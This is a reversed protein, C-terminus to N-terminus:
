VEKGALHQSLPTIQTEDVQEFTLQEFPSSCTALRVRKERNKRAIGTLIVVSLGGPSMSEAGDEYVAM